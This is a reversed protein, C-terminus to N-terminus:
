RPVTAFRSTPLVILRVKGILADVPVPGNHAARSDVSNSRSDGMVWLQGPPVRVPAFRAQAARGFEPGYYIYPEDLPRRDVLLRNRADCCAVTQGGVAIVRKVFDVREPSVLGFSAGVARLAGVLANPSPSPHPLEANRWSEPVTFVVIDGPEPDGFRYALRDVLVRDNDCGPCGHLTQEMSGSPITFVKAVLLPVLLALVAVVLLLKLGRGLGEDPQATDKESPMDSRAADVM